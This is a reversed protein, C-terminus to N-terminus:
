IAPQIDSLYPKLSEYLMKKARFVRVKALSLSIKLMEAIEEYQFGDFHKLELPERFEEPLSAIAKKLADELVVDRGTSDSADSQTSAMDIDVTLRQRHKANLIQNRTITFLWAVFSGGSFSGRREFVLTMVTQFIDEAAERTKMARLCYAFVRRDYRRYLVRFAQEHAKERVLAFLEEDTMEHLDERATTVM